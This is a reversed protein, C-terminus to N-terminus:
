NSRNFSSFNKNEEENYLVNEGLIIWLHLQHELFVTEPVLSSLRPGPCVHVTVAQRKLSLEPTEVDMCTHPTM